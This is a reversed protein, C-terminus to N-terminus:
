PPFPRDRLKTNKKEDGRWERSGRALQHESCFGRSMSDISTFAQIGARLSCRCFFFVFGLGFRLGEVKFRLGEFRRAKLSLREVRLRSGQVM